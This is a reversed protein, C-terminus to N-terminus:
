FLEVNDGLDELAVATASRAEPAPLAKAIAQHVERESQMTYHQALHELSEEPPTQGPAADAAIGALLACARHIVEALVRGASFGSRLARIGERLGVSLAAIQHLRGASTEASERMKLITSRLESLIEEVGGDAPGSVPTQSLGRATEIMTELPAAIECSIGASDDAVRQMVGALVELANGTAGIQTARIAANIAIRRLRIGIEAVDTVSARMRAVDQQLGSMASRAADEALVCASLIKAIGNFRGEMQTFFSNRDGSSGGLLTESEGAMGAVRQAIGELDGEIREVSANFIRQADSLQASQLTLISDAHLADPTSGLRALAECVHEIKQRTIDHFQLAGVLDEIAASVETYGAAQRLSAEHACRDEDALSRMGATVEDMLMPLERMAGGCLETIRAIAARMRRQLLNSADLVGQGCSEINQTLTRVEDALNGFGAGANGLRATEIRTLSGLVRCLSVTDRFGAFACRARQAADGITALARGGEALRAETQRLQELVRALLQGAHRGREGSVLESLDNMGCSIERAAASFEMLQGGVALFDKETNRNLDELDAIVPELLDQCRNRFSHSGRGFPIHLLRRAHARFKTRDFRV